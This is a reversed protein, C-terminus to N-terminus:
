HMSSLLKLALDEQEALSISNTNIDVRKKDETDGDNDDNDSDLYLKSKKNPRFTTADEDSESADEEDDEELRDRKWKLKQKMRKEKRLKRANSKDVKDEQKLLERMKQYREQVKDKDIASLSNMGNADAITALPPLNNGDEDFVTRTGVPRHINIKLKKKKTVRTAPVVSELETIAPKKESLSEERLLDNDSEEEDSEEEDSESGSTKPAELFNDAASKELEVMSSLKSSNKGASKQDSFRIKPTLPLGLSASFDDIGLKMVDFVDKDKEKCVSKLYTIFSRRALQQMDPYKVLLAALLPSVPQLREKNISKAIIPIKAEQLKEVMKMESPELFLVAKGGANYRATRGVRHIYTAVDSPCDMQVVWDVSKEFDLGRSSVDTSFLVSRKESFHSYTGLRREQNMKGHLCKLPIGPRLKKFAEFVFKVQKRSTLFVLIRSNLHAKIFSWLLDLKQHLPVVTATQQLRTPTATTAEAHVSLYEPDKLSLRALDQVSKTQTASFLLTQRKKPLQSIVANMEKKFGIDLIRDAEDLVLIQLQSCDFNPTERMHHDLRGPTCVLINLYNIREKEIDVGQRGGIFLGASFGHYKGVSNLVGFLQIALERTPSIIIGGVGDEPGWREKYLKELVPIVFALTKGSGTQAAGLIDRGCLSHPLSARQIDTMQLFKSNRLGDKTKRSLPMQNFFECGAYRSFTDDVLKGVPSDKSLPPLSLPNSGSAPKGFEIWKELFQIEEVENQRRQKGLKTHKPKSKAM